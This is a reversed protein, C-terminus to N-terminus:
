NSRGQRVHEQRGPVPILRAAMPRGPENRSDIVGPEGPLRRRPAAQLFPVSRQQRRHPQQVRRAVAGHRQPQWEQRLRARRRHDPQNFDSSTFSTTSSCCRAAPALDTAPYPLTTNVYDFRSGFDTVSGDSNTVFRTSAANSAPLSTNLWGNSTNATFGTYPSPFGQGLAFQQTLFLSLAEGCSNENTVGPGPLFGWGKNQRQMFSETIESVLYSRLENSSNTNPKLRIDGTNNAGGTLRTVYVNIRTSPLTVGAFWNAMITYDSEAANMLAQTRAPELGGAALSSDYSFAYHTTAGGSTLSTTVFWQAYLTLNAAPMPFSTDQPWGHFTGTGDAKTNWSAFTAGTKTMSGPVAVNVTAGANYWNSDVPVSGGDSGNGNYTVTFAM